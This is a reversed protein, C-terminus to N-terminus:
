VEERLSAKSFSIQEEIVKVTELLNNESFPKGILQIGMPLGDCEGAPLSIAPFGSLNALATFVDASNVLEVNEELYTLTPACSPTTPLIIYDYEDLVQLLKNYIKMRCKQAWLFYKNYNEGKSLFAGFTLFDKVKSGLNSTRTQIYMDQLHKGESRTGFRVGDFNALNSFAEVAGIIASVLPTIKLYPFPIEGLTAGSKKCTKLVKNLCNNIEANITNSLNADNLFALKIGTLDQKQFNFSNLPVDQSTPDKEDYVSISSLGYAADVVNDAFVGIQDMSSAYDILGRRSVRGYTPKVGVIGCYSASQRLGGRADSSFGLKAGGTAVVVAAGSGAICQSNWPNTTTKYYSAGISDGIGFEDINTKGLVGIGKEFSKELAFANFPSTYNELIKSGCTTKGEKYCINDSVVCPIIQGEYNKFDQFISIFANNTKNVKKSIGIYENFFEEQNFSEQKSKQLIGSIKSENISM